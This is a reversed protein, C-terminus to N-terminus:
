VHARGIEDIDPDLTVSYLCRKDALAGGDWDISEGGEKFPKGNARTLADATDGVKLGRLTWASPQDSYAFTVVHDLAGPFNDRFVPTLERPTGPYIYANGEEDMEIGDGFVARLEDFSADPLLAACVDELTALVVPPTPPAPQIPQAAQAPEALPPAAEPAKGCGPLLLAFAGILSVTSVRISRGM